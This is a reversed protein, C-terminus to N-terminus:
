APGLLREPGWTDGELAARGSYDDNVVLRISVYLLRFMLRHQCHCWNGKLFATTTMDRALLIHVTGGEKFVLSWRNLM